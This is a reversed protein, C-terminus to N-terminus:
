EEQEGRITLIADAFGGGIALYTKASGLYHYPYDSGVKKWEALNQKWGKKYIADATMDWYQDTKVVLVNKKFESLAAPGAQADKFTQKKGDGEEATGGVGLQGIVFPLNPAELDRRIDRIFNAMHEGYEATYEANIMDNWGQFWVFGALEYGQGHYEPFYEKLNALTGAVEELTLRYYAGFAAKVDEITADPNKKLQKELIAELVEDTPFGSSPPRFDRYLSKGGWATKILLVQENYHDGMVQGFQLEPGFRGPSGFGPALNGDRELFKIWVDGREVWEGDNGKLHAFLEMTEAQGSQYELLSLQAKGEMNSQGALIFVKVPPSGARLLAPNLLTAAILIVALTLVFRPTTRHM